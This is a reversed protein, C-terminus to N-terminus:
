VQSYDNVAEIAQKLSMRGSVINLWRDNTFNWFSERGTDEWSFPTVILDDENPLILDAFPYLEINRFYERFLKTEKLFRIFRKNKRAINIHRQIDDRM